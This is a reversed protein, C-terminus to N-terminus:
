HQPSSPEAPDAKRSPDLLESRLVLVDPPANIGLRVQNGRIELISIEINDGVQISEGPRRTLILMAIGGHFTTLDRHQCLKRDFGVFTEDRSRTSDLRLQLLDIQTLSNLLGQSRQQAEEFFPVCVHWIATSFGPFGSFSCSLIAVYQASSCSRLECGSCPPQRVYLLSPHRKVRCISSSAGLNVEDTAAIAGLNELCVLPNVHVAVLFSELVDDSIERPDFEQIYGSGIQESHGLVVSLIQQTVRSVKQRHDCRLCWDGSHHAGKLM